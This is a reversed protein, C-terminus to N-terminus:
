AAKDNNYVLRYIAPHLTIKDEARMARLSAGTVEIPIGEVNLLILAYTDPYQDILGWIDAELQLPEREICHDKPWYYRVLDGSATRQEWPLRSSNSRGIWSGDEHFFRDENDKRFGQVTAFREMISPKMPKPNLRSRTPPEELDDLIPDEGYQTEEEKTADNDSNSTINEPTEEDTSYISPTEGTEGLTGPSAIQLEDSCPANTTDQEEAQESDPLALSFNEEIYEYVDAPPREFSYDLAAKIDPRGFVKGIEEPVRRALKAKPLEDVYLADGIWVV